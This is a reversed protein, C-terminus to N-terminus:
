LFVSNLKELVKLSEAANDKKSLFPGEKLKEIPWNIAINPDNWKLSRESDKNWYNTTKYQVEAVESLTLFGHAYGEPIWLQNKNEENLEYGFWKKFTPSNRRLDVAVDFIKGYSCRVLKGQSFPPLQFHLGRLVGHNSRSHNDQFFTIDKKILKDFKKKNYSEYFFGREDNFINPRILLPINNIKEKNLKIESFGM